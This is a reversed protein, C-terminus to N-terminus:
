KQHKNYLGLSTVNPRILPLAADGASRLSARRELDPAKRWNVCFYKPSHILLRVLFRNSEKYM